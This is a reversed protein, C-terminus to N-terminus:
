KDQENTTELFIQKSDNEKHPVNAAENIDQFASEEVYEGL